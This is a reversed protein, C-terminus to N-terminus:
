SQLENQRVHKLQSCSRFFLSCSSDSSSIDRDPLGLKIKNMPPRSEIVDLSFGADEYATKLRVLSIYGWPLEDRKVGEIGKSFDMSGVVHDVGCQKVMKWLATPRPPLVEAIKIM